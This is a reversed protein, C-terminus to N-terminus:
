CGGMKGNRVDVWKGVKNVDVWKRVKVDVCKGVKNVNVWKGM